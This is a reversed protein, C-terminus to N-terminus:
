PRSVEVQISQSARVGADSAPRRAPSKHAPPRAPAEPTRQPPSVPAAQPPAPAQESLDMRDVIGVIVAEACSKENGLSLRSSSGEYVILVLDGQGADVVDVALVENGVPEGTQVDVPQTLLLKAGKFNPDQITSWLPGLVRAVLM